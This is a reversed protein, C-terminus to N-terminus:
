NADDWAAKVRRFRARAQLDAVAQELPKPTEVIYKM